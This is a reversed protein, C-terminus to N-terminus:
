RRLTLLYILISLGFIFWYKSIEQRYMDFLFDTSLQSAFKLQMLENLSVPSLQSISFKYIVVLVLASVLSALPGAISTLSLWMRNRIQSSNIYVSAGPLGIGGMLLFIMPMILTLVPDVYKLPNLTLYGKEKVSTDGGYYAAIAHGFEHLCLSLIWGLFVFIAIEIM